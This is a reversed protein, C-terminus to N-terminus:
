NMLGKEIIVKKIIIRKGPLHLRIFYIGDPEGSLDIINSQNDNIKVARGNLDYIELAEIEPDNLVQFIGSGPVPYITIRDSVNEKLGVPNHVVFAALISDQNDLTLVNGASDCISLSSLQWLGEEASDAIMVDLTYVQSDQSIWYEISNTITQGLEGYPNNLGLSIKDLGSGVDEIQLTIRISDGGSITDPSISLSYLEPPTLDLSNLLESLLIYEWTLEGGAVDHHFLLAQNGPKGAEIGSALFQIGEPTLYEFQNTRFGIDGAICIVEVGREEVQLLHPYIDSYFNNKHICSFCASDGLGANSIYPIQPQLYTNGYMWILKHHLIILHSSASITDTINRVLEKQQGSINSLSDQTDLVLFTINNKYYAYYAQRGTFTSIRQLDAYDHNGLAWLTNEDSLNFISDAHMMTLDDTSTSWALDGGLWLMDFNSYAISEAVGDMWPNSGTRTHAIHM